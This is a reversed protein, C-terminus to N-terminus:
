SPGVTPFHSRGSHTLTLQSSLLIFRMARKIESLKLIPITRPVRAPKPRNYTISFSVRTSTKQSTHPLGNTQVCSCHESLGPDLLELQTTMLLPRLAPLWLGVPPHPFGVSSKLSGDKTKYSDRPHYEIPYRPTAHRRCAASYRSLAEQGTSKWM